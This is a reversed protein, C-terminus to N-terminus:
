RLELFGRMLREGCLALTKLSRLALRDAVLKVVSAQRGIEGGVGRAQAESTTTYFGRGFDTNPRGLGPEVGERLIAEAAKRSTGHFLEIKPNDWRSFAKGSSLVYELLRGYSCYLWSARGERASVM